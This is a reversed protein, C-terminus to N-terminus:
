IISDKRELFSPLKPIHRKSNNAVWVSISIGDPNQPAGRLDVVRVRLHAGEEMLAGLSKASTDDLQGLTYTKSGFLRDIMRRAPAQAVIREGDKNLSLVDGPRLDCRALNPMVEVLPASYILPHM